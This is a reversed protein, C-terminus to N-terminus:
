GRIRMIYVLTGPEDNQTFTTAQSVFRFATGSLLTSNNFTLNSITGSYVTNFYVTAQEVAVIQGNDNVTNHDNESLIRLLDANNLTEGLVMKAFLEGEDGVKDSLSKSDLYHGYEELLVKTVDYSSIGTNLWDSNLYITPKQITGIASYAGFAGRMQKESLFVVSVKEDINVYYNEKEYAHLLKEAQEISKSVISHQKNVILSNLVKFREEQGSIDKSFSRFSISQLILTVLIIIPYSRLLILFTHLFVSNNKSLPLNGEPLINTLKEPLLYGENKSFKPKTFFYNYTM